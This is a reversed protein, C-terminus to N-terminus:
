LGTPQDTAQDFLRRVLQWPGGEVALAGVFGPMPDLDVLTWRETAGQTTEIRQIRAPEGPSISVDFSDLPLSMGAGVAKIVSEKRVWGRFFAETKLAGGIAAFAARENPSFFREVIEGLDAMERVQEVDVGLRRSRAAAILALGQSHSVNFQLAISNQPAVLDPKGHESYEFALASPEEGLLRGVITRLAWRCVAFRNRDQDFHFRTARCVEDASLVGFLRRFEAQPRDLEVRWVHVEDVEIGRDNPLLPWADNAAHM